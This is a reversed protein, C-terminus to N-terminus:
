TRTADGEVEPMSPDAVTSAQSVLRKFREAEARTMESTVSEIDIETLFELDEETAQEGLVKVIRVEHHLLRASALFQRLAARSGITSQQRLIDDKIYSDLNDKAQQLSEETIMGSEALEKLEGVQSARRTNFLDRAQSEGTEDGSVNANSKQLQVQLTKVKQRLEKLERQAARSISGKQLASEDPTSSSPALPNDFEFSESENQLAKAEPKFRQRWLGYFIPAPVIAVYLTALFWGYGERPVWENSWADASDNRLLLCTTYMLLVAVEGVTEM